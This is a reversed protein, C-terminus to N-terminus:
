YNRECSERRELHTWDNTDKRELVTNLFKRKEKLRNLIRTKNKNHPNRPIVFRFAAYCGNSFTVDIVEKNNENVKKVSIRQQTVNM